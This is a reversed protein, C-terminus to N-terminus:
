KAVSLSLDEGAGFRVIKYEKKNLIMIDFLAESIDGSKRDNIHTATRGAWNANNYNMSVACETNIVPLNGLTANLELREHHYHGSHVLKLNGTWKSFDYAFKGDSFNTHNTAAAIIKQMTEKNTYDRSGDRFSEHSFVIYECDMRAFAKNLLWNIQEDKFGYNMGAYETRKGDVLTDDCDVMNLCVVRVNKGPLDYYFYGRNYETAYQPFKGMTMDYWEKQTFVYNPDVAWDANYNGNIQINEDHNGKLIFVPKNCKSLIGTVREFIAAVKEKNIDDDSHYENQTDGGLCVFDVDTNNAIDVVAQYQRYCAEAQDKSNTNGVAGIHSDTIFIYRISDVEKKEDYRKIADIIEEKYGDVDYEFSLTIANTDTIYKTPAETVQETTVETDDNIEKTEAKGCGMLASGTLITATMGLAIYKKFLRNM